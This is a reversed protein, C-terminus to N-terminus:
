LYYRDDLVMHPEGLITLIESARSSAAFTVPVDVSFDATSWNLKTLRLLDTAAEKFEISGRNETIEWPQPTTKGPYCRLFPIYGSTYVLGLKEGFPIAAGRLVPKRGSRLFFTGGKAASILAHQKIGLLSDAFAEREVESYPSAKHVIVKRPTRGTFKGYAALIRSMLKKSQEKDLHPTGQAGKNRQRHITDGKLLFGQGTDTVARAFTTWIEGSPSNPEQRFTVGAFCTDAQADSLRWPTIGAKYLLRTTLNWAVTAADENLAENGQLKGGVLIETPLFQACAAKLLARDVRSTVACIAVNPPFELKSLEQLPDGFLGRLMELKAAPDVCDEAFRLAHPRVTRHWAPRTILNVFFPGGPNLGPFSPYLVSDVNADQEVPKALQDLLTTAKEIGEVTGVIGVSLQRQHAPQGNNYPGYAGLGTKPDVCRHDGGFLLEPESLLLCDFQDTSRSLYPELPPSSIVRRPPETGPADPPKPLYKKM